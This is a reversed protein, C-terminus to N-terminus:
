AVPALPQDCLDPPMEGPEAGGNTKQVRQRVASIEDYHALFAEVVEPDFQAGAQRAIEDRAAREDWAQKYTRRSTLADYVDAVAVIRAERSIDQSRLGQGYGRGDWREHHDRAINHALHMVDGEVDELLRAGYTVHEKMRAYEAKTLRGPKELIDQPILLKGVDHMMSALRIREVEDPTYGLAQALIRTYESVRRVHGGTQASKNECIEAFSVIMEEQIRSTERSREELTAGYDILYSVFLTVAVLVLACATNWFAILAVKWLAERLNHAVQHSFHCTGALAEVLTRAEACLRFLFLQSILYIVPRLIDAYVHGLTHPVLRAKALTELLGPGVLNLAAVHAWTQGTAALAMLVIACLASAGCAVQAATCVLTIIRGLRKLKEDYRGM